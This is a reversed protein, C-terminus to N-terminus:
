KIEILASILEEKRMYTYKGEYKLYTLAQKLSNVTEQTARDHMRQAYTEKNEGAKQEVETLFASLAKSVQVKRTQQSM